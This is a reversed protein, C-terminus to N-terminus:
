VLHIFRNLVTQIYLDDGNLKGDGNTDVYKLDGAKFGGAGFRIVMNLPLPM